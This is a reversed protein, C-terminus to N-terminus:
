GDRDVGVVSGPPTVKLFDIKLVYHCLVVWPYAGMIALIV